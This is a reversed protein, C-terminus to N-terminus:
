GAPRPQTLSPVEELPVFPGEPPHRRSRAPAPGPAFPGFGWSIPGGSQQRGGPRRPVSRGDGRIRPGRDHGGGEAGGGADAVPQGATLQEGTASQRQEEGG